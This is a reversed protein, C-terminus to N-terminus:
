DTEPDEVQYTRTWSEGCRCGFQEVLEGEDSVAMGQNLRVHVHQKTM